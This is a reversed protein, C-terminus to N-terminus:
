MRQLSSIHPCFAFPFAPPAGVWHSTLNPKEIDSLFDCPDLNAVIIWSLILLFCLNRPMHMFFFFTPILILIDFLNSQPYFLSIFLPYKIIVFCATVFLYKHVLYCLTLLVFWLSMSVCPSNYINTTFSLHGRETCSLDLPYFALVSFVWIVYSILVDWIGSVGNESLFAHRKLIWVVFVSWM